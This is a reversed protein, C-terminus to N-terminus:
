SLTLSTKLLLLSHLQYESAQHHIIKFPQLGCAFSKKVPKGQSVQSSSDLMGGSQVPVEPAAFYKSKVLSGAPQSSPRSAGKGDRMKDNLSSISSRNSSELKFAQQRFIDWIGKGMFCLIRPRYKAIKDVLVPVSRRM